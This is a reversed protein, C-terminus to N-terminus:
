VVFYHGVILIPDRESNVYLYYWEANWAEVNFKIQLEM